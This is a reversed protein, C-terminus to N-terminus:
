SLVLENEVAIFNILESSQNYIPFIRVLCRYPEQNKRYNLLTGCYVRRQTIKSRINRKSVASTGKGQLFSPYRGAAETSTYGTMRTFGANVWQIYENPDTVILAHYVNVQGLASASRRQGDM